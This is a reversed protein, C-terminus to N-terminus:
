DRPPTLDPPPALDRPPALDPPPALDRLPALDPPPALDPLIAVDCSAAPPPPPSHPRRPPPAGAPPPAPTPPPRRTARAAPSAPDRALFCYSHCGSTLTQSVLWSSNFSPSGLELSMARCTGDVVAWLQAPAGLQSDAWTAYFTYSANGNGRVPKVSATPLKPL